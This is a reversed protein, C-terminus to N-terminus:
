YDICPGSIWGGNRYIRMPRCTPRPLYRYGPTPSTNIYAGTSLMRMKVAWSQPIVNQNWNGSNTVYINYGESNSITFDNYYPNKLSYKTWVPTSVTGNALEDIEVSKVSFGSRYLSFIIDSAKTGPQVVPIGILNNGAVLNEVIPAEDLIGSVHITGAVDSKLAYGYGPILPFNKGSYGIQDVNDLLASPTWQSGVLGEIESYGSNNNVQNSSLIDYAMVNVPKGIKAAINAPLAFPFAYMNWGQNVTYNISINRYDVQTSAHSETSLQQNSSFVYAVGTVGILFALFLMLSLFVSSGRSRSKAM